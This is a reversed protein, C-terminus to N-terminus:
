KIIGYKLKAALIRVVSETIRAETIRGDAAAAEIAKVSAELDQPELLMDNGALVAQVAIEDNSNADTLAKQNLYDSIIVGRFGLEQRLCTIVPESLTAPKDDMEKVTLNGVMVFDAGADIGAQFPVFDQKMLEAKTKTIVASGAAADGSTSGYGPFYKLTCLVKNEAFGSVAAAVLEGAQAYDDSYARDGVVQNGEASVVDAVPALDLNIGLSVLDKAITAANAAAAEAGQEKYTLPANVKTTKLKEMLPSHSGGEEEVAILLGVQSLDQAGSIMKTFQDKKVINKEAYMLGGVPRAKINKETTKGTVTATGVGTLCEPSVLFMQCVKEHLSMKAAIEAAKESRAIEEESLPEEQPQESETTGETAETTETPETNQTEESISETEPMLILDGEGEVETGALRNAEVRALFEETEKREKSRLILLGSIILSLCVASILTLTITKKM